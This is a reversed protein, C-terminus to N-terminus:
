TTLSLYTPFFQEPIGLGPTSGITSWTGGLFEANLGFLGAVEQFRQINKYRNTKLVARHDGAAVVVAIRHEIARLKALALLNDFRDTSKAACYAVVHHDYAAREPIRRYLALGDSLDDLSMAMIGVRGVDKEISHWGGSVVQKGVRVTGSTIRIDANKASDVAITIDEYRKNTFAQDDGAPDDDDSPMSAPVDYVLYGGFGKPGVNEVAAKLREGSHFAVAQSAGGSDSRRKAMTCLFPASLELSRGQIVNTWKRLNVGGGTLDIFTDAGATRMRQGLLGFYMDHCIQVSLRRGKLVIPTFMGEGTRRYDPWEFALREATSHKVYVHAGTEGAVPAPNRYVATEFGDTTEVGVLSAVGLTKACDDAIGQIRERSEVAYAEPFVALDIQGAKCAARLATVRCHRRDDFQYRDDPVVLAIKLSKSV